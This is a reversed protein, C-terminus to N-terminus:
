LMRQQVALVTEKGNFEVRNMEGNKTMTCFHTETPIITSIYKEKQLGYPLTLGHTGYKGGWIKVDGENTLAAFDYKTSFIMKINKFQEHAVIPSSFQTDKKGWIIVNGEDTLAAVASETSLIMRVNKLQSQVKQSDGCRAKDGWTIVNGDNTLAAFATRTSVITKINKLRSQVAKSDGGFQKDGWTIAHGDNTLAAFACGM